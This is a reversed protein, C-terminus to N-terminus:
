AGNEGKNREASDPGAAINPALDALYAAPIPIPQGTQRDTCVQVARARVLAAGDSARALAFHRYMAEEQPGSLWTTLVLEDDLTAPQRYEIQYRRPVIAFGDARMRDPPWGHAATAQVACDEVFDLYAANNMHRAMDLDQWEVHRWLRYVGPPAPPAAPFRERAPASDPAGEPFFAAKMEEPVAAPRRGGSDLFAWDTIAQALLAGAGALHLEYARRSRVRRFDAVWTKVVVTDGYAPSRVIELDTERALWTRGMAQYRAMDYGAAATADFATEQMYRLYTAPRLRGEADCEYSRVQFAREHTLPM